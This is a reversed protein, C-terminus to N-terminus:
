AYHRWKVIDFSAFTFDVLLAARQTVIIRAGSAIGTVSEIALEIRGDGENSILDGAEIFRTKDLARRAYCTV